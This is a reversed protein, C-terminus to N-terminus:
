QREFYRKERKQGEAAIKDHEIWEVFSDIEEFYIDTELAEFYKHGCEIKKLETPRLSEALISGKTELVFHLSECGDGEM